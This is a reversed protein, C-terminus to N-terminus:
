LRSEAGRGTQPQMEAGGGPGCWPGRPAPQAGPRHERTQGAAEARPKIQPWPPPTQPAAGAERRRLWTSGPWVPWSAYAPGHGTPPSPSRTIRGEAAGPDPGTQAGRPLPPARQAGAEPSSSMLRKSAESPGSCFLSFYFEARSEASSAGDALGEPSGCAQLLGRSGLLLHAPPTLSAKQGLAKWLGLARALPGPSPPGPSPPRTLPGLAAKATPLASDSSGIASPLDGAEQPAASPGPDWLAALPPLAPERRYSLSGPLVTTLGRVNAQTVKNETSKPVRDEQKQRPWLSSFQPQGPVGVRGRHQAPGEQAKETLLRKPPPQSHTSLTIVHLGFPDPGFGLGSPRLSGTQARARPPPPRPLRRKHGAGPGPSPLPEPTRLPGWLVPLVAQKPPLLDGDRSPTRCESGTQGGASGEREPVTQPGAAGVSAQARGEGALALSGPWRSRPSKQLLERPRQTGSSPARVPGVPPPRPSCNSWSYSSPASPAFPQTGGRPTPALGPPRQKPLRPAQSRIKPDGPGPPRVEGRGRHERGPRLGPGRSHM